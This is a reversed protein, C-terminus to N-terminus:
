DTNVTLFRGDNGFLKLLVIISYILSRVCLAGENCEDFAGYFQPDPDQYQRALLGNLVQEQMEPKIQAIGFKSSEHFINLVVPNAACSAEFYGNEDLKETVARLFKRIAEAYTQKPYVHYACLIGLTGLDDNGRHLGNQPDEAPVKETAKEVTRFFGDEQQITSCFYDAMHEFFPGVWKKDGTTRYLQYFFNLSGGHFCGHMDSRMTPVPGMVASKEFEVGWLPWGTEDLGHKLFWESWLLARTLYEEKGSYRYYELFGWAGSLADRVFCWTTHPFNERIAGYHEKLSPSFIQLTELFRMMGEASRFYKDEGFVKGASLMAMAGFALNWEPCADSAVRTHYYRSFVFNGGMFDRARPPVQNNIVWNAAKRAAEIYKKETVSMKKREFDIYLFWYADSFSARAVYQSLCYHCFFKQRKM